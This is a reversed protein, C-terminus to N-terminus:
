GGLLEAALAGARESDHAQRLLGRAQAELAEAEGLRGDRRSLRARAALIRAAAWRAGDAAEEVADHRAMLGLYADLARDERGEAELLRAAAWAAEAAEAETGAGDPPWALSVAARAEELRGARLHLEARLLYLARRTADSASPEGLLRDALWAAEDLGGAPSGALARGVERVAATAWPSGPAERALALLGAVARGATDAPAAPPNAEGPRGLALRDRRFAAERAREPTLPPRAPARPDAARRYDGWAQAWQGLREGARGASLAAEADLDALARWRRAAGALDGEAELCGAERRRASLRLGDGAEPEATLRAYDRRAEPWRGLAELARARLWGARLRGAPLDESLRAAELPELAAQLVRSADLRWADARAAQGGLALARALDLALLGQWLRARGRALWRGGSPAAADQAEIMRAVADEMRRMAEAALAEDVPASAAARQGAERAQGFEAEWLRWALADPDMGEPPRGALHTWLRVAAGSPAPDALWGAADRPPRGGPAGPPRPVPAADQRELAALRGFGLAAEQGAARLRAPGSGAEPPLRAAEGLALLARVAAEAAPGARRGGGPGPDDWEPADEPGPVPLALGARARALLVHAESLAGFERAGRASAAARSAWFAAGGWDGLDLARSALIERAERVPTEGGPWAAMERWGEGAEDERGLRAAAEAALGRVRLALRSAARGPRSPLAGPALARAAWGAAAAADGDELALRAALAMGELAAHPLDAGSDGAADELAARALSRERRRGSPPLTASRELHAAALAPLLARRDGGDLGPEALAARGAEVAEDWRSLRVLGRARLAMAGAREPGPEPHERLFRALEDLAAEVGPVDGAAMRRRARQLRIQRHRPGSPFHLDARNLADMAAGLWEARLRGAAGGDGGAPPPPLADLRALHAQALLWATEGALAHTLDVSDQAALLWRIAEAPRGARLYLRGAAHAAEAARLPRALRRRNAALAAMEGAAEAWGDPTAALAELCRARGYAAEEWAAERVLGEGPTEGAPLPAAEFGALLDEWEALARQHFGSEMLRAAGAAREAPSAPAPGPGAEGAFPPVRAALWLVLAPGLFRVAARSGDRRM